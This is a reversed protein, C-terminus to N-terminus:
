PRWTRLAARRSVALRLTARCPVPVVPVALGLLPRFARRLVVPAVRLVLAVWQWALALAPAFKFCAQRRAQHHVLPRDVPLVVPLAWVPVNVAPAICMMCKGVLSVTLPLRLCAHQLQM